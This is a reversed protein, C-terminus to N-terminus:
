IFIKDIIKRIKIATTGDGYPNNACSMASYESENTLLFNVNNVIRERSTGVLHAVGAEDGEMRETVDRMVLVPKGLTPAEEQIGGYDTLVLYSKNMLWIMYQYGLTEILFINKIGTLIKNVPKRVNPNLHVPYVIHIDPNQKSIDKMAYCMEEFPRGFSERRHGTVLLVQKNFNINIFYKIYKEQNNEKIRKLGMLLADIVTNGVIYVNKKINEKILNDKAKKTPAFHYTALVSTLRRNMEEPFPSYINNSRLGAEIHAILVKNYFSALAGALVTSTDGQVFVIDPKFDNFIKKISTLISISVDFLDQGPQMINLDYDPNIDFFENVQDLMDRHQSTVCIRIQYKKNSKFEHILPAMKIAEPRTGYIFLIKKM